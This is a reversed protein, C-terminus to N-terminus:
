IFYYKTIWIRTNTTSKLTVAVPPSWDSVDGDNDIRRVRYCLTRPEPIDATGKLPINPIVEEFGETTAFGGSDGTRFENNDTLDPAFWPGNENESVQLQSRTPLLGQQESWHLIVQQNQHRITPMPVTLQPTSQDIPTPERTVHPFPYRIDSFTDGRRARPTLSRATTLEYHAYAKTKYKKLQPGDISPIDSMIDIPDTEAELLNPVITSETQAQFEVLPSTEATNITFEIYAPYSIINKPVINVETTGTTFDMPFLVTQAAFADFDYETTGTSLSIPANVSERLEPVFDFDPDGTRFEIPISEIAKLLFDFDPDGTRFAFDVFIQKTPSFVIEPEGTSVVFAVSTYTTAEISITPSGTTFGFPFNQSDRKEARFSMTPSGTRFRFANPARQEGAMSVTPNGTEFDLERVFIVKKVVFSFTPSGTTVQVDSTKARFNVQPDGTTMRIQLRPNFSYYWIKKAQTDSVYFGTQRTLSRDWAIAAPVISQNTQRLVSRLLDQEESQLSRNEGKYFFWATDDQSDLVFLNKHPGFTMGTPVLNPNVENLADTTVQTGWKTSFTSSDGPTRLVRVPVDTERRVARTFTDSDGVIEVIPSWSRVNKLQTTTTRTGTKTVWRFSDGGRVTREEPKPSYISYTPPDVYVSRGQGGGGRYCWRSPWESRSGRLGTTNRASLNISETRSPTNRLAETRSSYWGSTGYRTRSVRFFTWERAIYRTSSGGTIQGCSARRTGSSRDGNYRYQKTDPLRVTEKERYTYTEPESRRVCSQNYTIPWESAEIAEARTRFNTDGARYRTGAIITDGVPSCSIYRTTNERDGTVRYTEIPTSYTIVPWTIQTVFSDGYTPEIINKRRKFSLVSNSASDLIFPLSDGEGNHALGVPVADSPIDTVTPNRGDLDYSYLKKNSADGVWIKSDGYALSDVSPHEVGPIPDGFDVFASAAKTSPNIKLILNNSKDGIYLSTGDHALGAIDGRTSVDIDNTSDGREWSPIIIKPHEFRVRVGGTEFSFQIRDPRIRRFFYIRDHTGTNINNAVYIGDDDPNWATGGIRLINMPFPLRYRSNFVYNGDEKVFLHIYNRTTIYLEDRRPDRSIGIFNEVRTDGLSNRLISSPIISQWSLGNWSKVSLDTAFLFPLSDGSDTLGIVPITSPLTVTRSLVNTNTNYFLLSNPSRKHVVITSNGVWATRDLEFNTINTGIFTDGKYKRITNDNETLFLTSDGYSIGDLAGLNFEKEKSDTREFDLLPPPGWDIRPDGTTLSFVNKQYFRVTRVNDAVYLGHKDFDWALGSTARDTKDFRRVYRFKHFYHFHKNTVVWLDDATDGTAIGGIATSSDGIVNRFNIREIVAQESLSSFDIEYLFINTPLSPNTQNERRIAILPHGNPGNTLGIHQVPSIATSTRSDFTRRPLVIHKTADGLHTQINLYILRDDGLSTGVTPHTRNAWVVINSDGDFFTRGFGVNGYTFRVSQRYATEIQAPTISRAYGQWIGNVYEHIGQQRSAVRGPIFVKNNGVYTVGPNRVSDAGISSTSIERFSAM